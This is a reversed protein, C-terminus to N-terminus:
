NEWEALSYPCIMGNGYDDLPVTEEMIQYVQCRRCSEGDEVCGQCKIRACDMLNKAQDKTMLVNTSMPMLKPVLRMEYDKMTGYIVKCQEATITNVIEDMLKQLDETHQKLREKGDPVMDLRKSIRELAYKENSLSALLMKIATVEDRTMRETM